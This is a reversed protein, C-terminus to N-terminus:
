SGNVIRELGAVITPHYSSKAEALMKRAIPQGWDGQRMLGAYLPRIFLGRGVSTLFAELSPLASEYRNAIALELWASRVYSNTSDSLKFTLDLDDLQARSLQRPLNNLFRLWEQTTWASAKIASAPGGKVFAATQEDM